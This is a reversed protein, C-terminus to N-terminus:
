SKTSCAAPCRSVGEKKANEALFTDGEQAAKARCASGGTARVVKGFEDLAKQMQEETLVLKTGALADMLGRVIMTPTSMWNRSKLNQAINVGIAYSAQDKLTKPAQDGAPAAAPQKCRPPTATTAPEHGTPRGAAHRPPRCAAPLSRHAEYRNGQSSFAPLHKPLAWIAYRLGVSYSGRLKICPMRRASLGSGRGCRWREGIAATGIEAAVRSRRAADFSSSRITSGAGTAEGAYRVECRPKTSKAGAPSFKGFFHQVSRGDEAVVDRMM